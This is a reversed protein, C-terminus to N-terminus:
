KCMFRQQTVHHEALTDLQYKVPVCISLHFQSSSLQKLRFISRRRRLRHSRRRDCSRDRYTELQASSVFVQQAFVFQNASSGVEATVFRYAIYLKNLHELERIVKQYELYSSREEKLRALTPNIEEKLIQLGCCFSSFNYVSFFLAAIMQAQPFRKDNICFRDFLQKKKENKVVFNIQIKFLLTVCGFLHKKEMVICKFMFDAMYCCKQFKFSVAM